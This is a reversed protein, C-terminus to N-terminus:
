SCNARPSAPASSASSRTPWSPPWAARRPASSIVKRSWSRGM